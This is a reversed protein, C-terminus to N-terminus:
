EIVEDALALLSPPITLGLVKATKLNMVLEFKTPQQVPLDAPKAGSLIKGAYVGVQRFADTLSASYSVLGGAEVFSRLEYMAPIRHRAALDVLLDRQNAFYVSAGVVLAGVRLSALTAFAAELDRESAATSVIHIPMDVSHAASRIQETRFATEPHGSEALVGLSKAHPILERLLGIRKTELDHTLITVGTANGQPRSLSTVLGARVPDIGSMFIIPITSTVSKAVVDARTSAIFVDVPLAVLEAALGPLREAEGRAYRYEITINRGDVYGAESLGQRVAATLSATLEPWGVFLIGVVPRTRQQARAAIPWVAAAGGVLTIFDRRRL